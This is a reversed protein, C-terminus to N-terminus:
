QVMWYIMLLAASGLGSSVAASVFFQRWCFPRRLGEQKRAMLDMVSPRRRRNPSVVHQAEIAPETRREAPSQEAPLAVAAQEQQARWSDAQAPGSADEPRVSHREARVAVLVEEGGLRLTEVTTSTPERATPLHVVTPEGADTKPETEFLLEQATVREFGGRRGRYGSTRRCPSTSTSM